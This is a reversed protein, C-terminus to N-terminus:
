LREHQIKLGFLLKGGKYEYKLTLFYHSALLVIEMRFKCHITHMNLEYYFIHSHYLIEVNYM